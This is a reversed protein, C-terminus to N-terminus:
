YGYPLTTLNSFVRRKNYVVQFKKHITKNKLEFAKKNRVITDSKTMLNQKINDPSVFEHVLELLTDHTIIDTNHSSLTIGKCKLQSKNHLTKYAYCKPGGSVFEVIYDDGGSDGNIEDTLEGLFPGTEPVWDGEKSVFIVSDTDSYICREGLKDMLDYLMLRAYATTMAGIFININKTKASQAVAHRWQVLAVDDSVFSFQRVDYQDSFMYRAFQEPDTVLECTPQNERMSFRGWLSNLLLKNISRVAKNVVIKEPNLQIGEKAYYDQVYKAKSEPDKAFSPYGSAEQKCQLFTKVYDKFLTDSKEAFHWVEDIKSVVYGKEVAKQLEPSVWTGSLSRESDLHNCKDSQNETEACTRCLPFMLKNNCRYPLVPHYLGRPPLVTCKILGFYKDISEFNRFIIEPHGIPYSKQAQVTPYLSTFDYYHIKESEDVKCHLKYANTRGGFLAQRPDIREPANYHKLFDQLSQDTTKAQEWECEWMVRVHLKHTQSLNSLKEKFQRYLVNFAINNVMNKHGPINCKPCGHWFCGAFEYATRVNGRECFGDVHYPGFQKEGHNLAHHIEVGNKFAEFELWQISANSFTKYQNVYAGNHTLALTDRPLFRTKFVTMCCSALTTCEFPDLGTGELFTARYLMCAKRLVVVDNIGYSRLQFQFDFVEHRVTNYWQLFDVRDKESMNDYGYYHTSPYPGVYDVNEATNFRHPFYGKKSDEFGLAAPTNALRMPLFSYSDLWRQKFHDDYMLLVKSGRMTLRPTICQKTFYDLLIYNDFGSANHAIFTYHKYKPCRFRQMFKEVCLPGSYWWKNDEFDIGCVFNAKHKGSEVTTEFDYFVYKTQPESPKQPQIYCKHTTDSKLEEGCHGCKGKQCKHRNIRNNSVAYLRGCDDCYKTRDCPIFSDRRQTQETMEKHKKFCFESRCIRLCDSCRKTATNPQKYCDSSLCVNCFYKCKHFAHVAYGKYCFECVYNSGFFGTKSQIMYYHDDHLYLWATNSHPQEHTQFLDLKKTDKNHHFVLIKIDLHKEFASVDSLSVKHSSNFGAGTHIQQALIQVDDETTQPHIHMVLCMSFCLNNDTNLPNYLCAKKKTIIQDYTVSGLKRRAGGRENLAVTVVFQLSEDSLFKDNSQMVQEIMNLFTEANYSNGANLVGCVDSSLSPGRLVVSLVGAPAAVGTSFNVVDTLRHRLISLNIRLSANTIDYLALRQRIELANFRLLEKIHSVRLGGARNIRDILEISFANATQPLTQTDNGTFRQMVGGNQSVNLVETQTMDDNDTDTDIDSDENDTLNLVVDEYMDSLINAADSWSTVPVSPENRFGDVVNDSNENDTLNSMFDKRITALINSAEDWGPDPSDNRFSDGDNESDSEVIECNKGYKSKNTCKRSM